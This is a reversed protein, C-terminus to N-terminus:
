GGFADTALCYTKNAPHDDFTTLGAECQGDPGSQVSVVKQVDLATGNTAGCSTKKIDWGTMVDPNTIVCDGTAISGSSAIAHGIVAAVIVLVALIGAVIIRQPTVAVAAKSAPQVPTPQAPTPQTQAPPVVGYQGPQDGTAAYQEQGNV